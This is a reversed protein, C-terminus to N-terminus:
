EIMDRVQDDTIEGPDALVRRGRRPWRRRLTGVGFRGAPGRHEVVIV